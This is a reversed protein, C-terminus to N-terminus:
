IFKNYTTIDGDDILNRIKDPTYRSAIIDLKLQKNLKQQIYEYDYDFNVYQKKTIEISHVPLHTKYVYFMSKRIYEFKESNSLQKLLNKDLCPSKSMTTVCSIIFKVRTGKTLYLSLEEFTKFIIEQKDTTTDSSEFLKFQFINHTKDYPLKYKGIISSYKYRDNEIHNRENYENMISICYNDIMKYLNYLKVQQNIEIDIDDINNYKDIIQFPTEIYQITIKNPGFFTNIDCIPKVDGYKLGYGHKNIYEHLQCFIAM